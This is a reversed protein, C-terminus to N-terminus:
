LLVYRDSISYEGKAAISIAESLIKHEKLLIKSKFSEYTDHAERLVSDQLIVPGGDLSEDVFHVTCGSVKVGYDFAQRQADVGKFAPLLSPHINIIKGKYGKLFVTGLIKMFGALVIIGTSYPAIKELLRNEYIDKSEEKKKPLVVTNMGLASAKEIGPADKKDSLVFSIESVGDLKGSIFNKCIQEMNTGSGSIFVGIKL